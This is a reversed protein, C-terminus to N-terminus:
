WLTSWATAAITTVWRARVWGAGVFVAVEEWTGFGGIAANLGQVSVAPGNRVQSVVHVCGSYYRFPLLSQVHVRHAAGAKGAGWGGAQPAGPLVGAARASGIDGALGCVHAAARSFEGVSVVLGCVSLRTTALRAFGGSCGGSGPDDTRLRRAGPGYADM